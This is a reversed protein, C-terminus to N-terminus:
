NPSICSFLHFCFVRVNCPSVAGAHILPLHIGEGVDKDYEVRSGIWACQVRVCIVVWPLCYFLVSWLLAIGILSMVM